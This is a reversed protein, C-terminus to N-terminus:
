PFEMWQIVPVAERRHLRRQHGDVLVVRRARPILSQKILARPGGARQDIRWFIPRGRQRVILDPSQALFQPLHILAVAVRSAGQHQFAAEIPALHAQRRFVHIPERPAVDRRPVDRQSNSDRRLHDTNGVRLGVRVHGLCPQGKVFFGDQRKQSPNNGTKIM